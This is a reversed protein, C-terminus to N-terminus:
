RGIKTKGFVNYVKAVVWILKSVDYGRRIAEALITECVSDTLEPTRSLIWLYKDSSGGVLVWQYDPDLLMVDIRNKLDFFDNRKNLEFNSTKISYEVIDPTTKLINFLYQMKENNEM